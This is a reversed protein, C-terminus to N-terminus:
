EIRDYVTHTFNTITLQSDSSKRMSITWIGSKYLSNYTDADYSIQKKGMKESIIFYNNSEKIIEFSEKGEAQSEWSGVFFDPSYYLKKERKRLEYAKEQEVTQLTERKNKEWHDVKQQFSTSSCGVFLLAAFFPITIKLRTLDIMYPKNDNTYKENEECSCSKNKDKM